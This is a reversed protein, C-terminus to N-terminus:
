QRMLIIATKIVIQCDAKAYTKNNILPTLCLYYIHFDRSARRESVHIPKIECIQEHFKNRYQKSM